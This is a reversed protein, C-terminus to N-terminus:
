FVMLFYHFQDAVLTRVHTPGGANRALVWLIVPNGLQQRGQHGKEMQLPVALIIDCM